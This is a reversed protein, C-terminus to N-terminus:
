KILIRMKEELASIEDNLGARSVPFTPNEVTRILVKYKVLMWGIMSAKEGREKAGAIHEDYLALGSMRNPYRARDEYEMLSGVLQVARDEHGLEREMRAVVWRAYLIEDWISWNGTFAVDQTVRVLQEVRDYDRFLYMLLVLETLTAMDVASKFSCKKILRRCDRQVRKKDCDNLIQEFLEMM